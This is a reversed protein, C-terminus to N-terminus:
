IKNLLNETKRYILLTFLSIIIGKIINFPAIIWLIFSSTDVVKPNLVAGMEIVAEIPMLTSYFPLIIFYNSICGVITMTIIGLFLGLVVGSKNHKLKYIRSVVFIFSSGILFNAIEGIGNTSSMGTIYQLLNKILEIMVGALPGLAIGGVVGAIDSIDIRLFEPFLMPIPMSIFMLIYGVSGLMATKVLISTKISM